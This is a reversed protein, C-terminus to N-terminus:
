SGLDDLKLRILNARAGEGAALLAAQYAKRADEPRGQARAVDGRLEAAQGALAPHRIAEILAAAEQTQGLDLAVRALRLRVLDRDFERTARTLADRLAEQAAATDGADLARSALHLDALLVYPSGAHTNRLATARTRAQAFDPAAVLAEYAASAREAQAQRHAAYWEWALVTVVALALAVLAPIGFRDWLRRLREIQEEDAYAV